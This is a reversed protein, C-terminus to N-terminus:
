AAGGLIIDLAEARGIMGTIRGTGDAVPIWDRSDSVPRRAMARLTQGGPLAPGDIARGNVPSALGGVHLVKARDIDATFRAVYDTAPQLVIRDPTDCQEVRGDKMIAIRDAVEYM